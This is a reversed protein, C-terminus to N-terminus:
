LILSVLFLDIIYNIILISSVYSDIGGFLYLLIGVGCYFIFMIVIMYLTQSSLLTKLKPAIFLYIFFALLCISFIKFGHSLEIVIFTATILLLSYYYKKDLCRKFAMFVVGLLLITIFHVPLLVNVLTTIFFLFLIIFPNDFLSNRYM